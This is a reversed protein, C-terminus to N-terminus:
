NLFLTIAKNYLENDDKIDDNKKLFADLEEPVANTFVRKFEEFRPHNEQVVQQEITSVVPTETQPVRTRIHCLTPRGREKIDEACNKMNTKVTEAAKKVNEAAKRVRDGITMAQGGCTRRGQFVGNTFFQILNEAGVVHPNSRRTCNGAGNMADSGHLSMIKNIKCWGRGHALGRHTNHRFRIMPHEHHTTKECNSCLDYNKQVVSNYRIGVIPNVGCGDCTFGTHVTKCDNEEKVPEEVNATAVGSRRLEEKVQQQILRQIEDKMDLTMSSRTTECTSMNLNNEELEYTKPKENRVIEAREIEFGMMPALEMIQQRVAELDNGDINIEILQDESATNVYRVPATHEEFVSEEQDLNFQSKIDETINEDGNNTEAHQQTTEEAAIVQNLVKWEDLQDLSRRMAEEVMSQEVSITKTQVQNIIDDDFPNQAENQDIKSEVADTEGIMNFGSNELYSQDNEILETQSVSVQSEFQAAKTISVSESMLNSPEDNELIRVVIKAVKKDDQLSELEEVCVEWDDQNVITILEEDSDIYGFLCNRVSEGWIKIALLRLEDFDPISNVKTQRKKGNQHIFKIFM